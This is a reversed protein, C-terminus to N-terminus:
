RTRCFATAFADMPVQRAALAQWVFLETVGRDLPDVGELEPAPVQGSAIVRAIALEVPPHALKALYRDADEVHKKALADFALQTLVKPDSTERAINDRLDKARPYDGLEETYTNLAERMSYLQAQYDLEHPLLGNAAAASVMTMVDNADRLAEDTSHKTEVAVRLVTLAVYLHDLPNADNAEVARAAAPGHLLLEDAALQARETMPLEGSYSKAAALADEGSKVDGSRAAGEAIVLETMRDLGVIQHAKVPDGAWALAFAATQEIWEEDLSREKDIHDVADLASAKAADREGLRALEVAVRVQNTPDKLKERARRLVRLQVERPALVRLSDFATETSHGHDDIATLACDLAREAWDPKKGADCGLVMVLLWWRM